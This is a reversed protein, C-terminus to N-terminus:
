VGTKLKRLREGLRKQIHGVCEQKSISVDEGYPKSELVNAFGKSDGDGLYKTYRLQLKAESRSCIALAGAVKKGGGGRTGSYNALCKGSEKHQKMLQADSNLPKRICKNGYKSFCQFDIVKGTDFSTTTIM